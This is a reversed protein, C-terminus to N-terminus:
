AVNSPPAPSGRGPSPSPTHRPYRRSCTRSYRSASKRLSAARTSSCAGRGQAALRAHLEPDFRARAFAGTDVGLASVVIPVKADAVIQRRTVESTVVIRDGVRLARAQVHELLPAGARQDRAATRQDGRGPALPVDGRGRRGPPIGLTRDGGPVGDRRPDRRGIPHAGGAGRHHRSQSPRRQLGVSRAADMGPRGRRPERRDRHSM